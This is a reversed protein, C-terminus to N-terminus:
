IYIKEGPLLLAIDSHTYGDSFVIQGSSPTIFGAILSLLVTKGTGNPAIITSIEGQIFQESLNELVVNNDFRRTVNRVSIM